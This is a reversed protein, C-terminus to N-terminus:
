GFSRRASTENDFLQCSWYTLTDKCFLHTDWGSAEAFALYCAEEFSKAEVIDVLWASGSDGNCRYGESWVEYKMM